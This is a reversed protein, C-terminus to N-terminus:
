LRRVGIKSFAYCYYLISLLGYVVLCGTGDSMSPDYLYRTLLMAEIRIFSFIKKPTFKIIVLIFVM